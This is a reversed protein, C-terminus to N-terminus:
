SIKIQCIKTKRETPNSGVSNTCQLVLERPNIVLQKAEEVLDVIYAANL